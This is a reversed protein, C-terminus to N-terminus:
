CRPSRGSAPAPRSTTVQHRREGLAHAVDEPTVEIGELGQEGSISVTLPVVRLGAAAIMGAPLVATSDTVM